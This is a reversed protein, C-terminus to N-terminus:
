RLILGRLLLRDLLGARIPGVRMACEIAEKLGPCLPGSGLSRHDPPKRGRNRSREEEEMEAVRLM